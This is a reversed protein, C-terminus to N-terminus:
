EEPNKEGHSSRYRIVIPVGGLAFATRLKSALFAQHAPTSLTPDNVFLTVRPPNRGTQTAYYFKLQRNRRVPAQASAFADRIARNLVGTPLRTELRSAVADIVAFSRKVNEGTKASIFLVPIDGLFFMDKRMAKEYDSPRIDGHERAIDWKNVLVVCAKHNERVLAAIKKEQTGPGEQADLVLVVLDADAIAQEARFLSFKEVSAHVRGQKRMGATDILWYHRNEISFPVRITDRTTGAVDSVILRNRGLLRNIYSSKGANPRGVVAISLRMPEDAATAPPLVKLAASLLADLGLHHTASVPFVPYGLEYFDEGGHPQTTDDDAKNAAVFVPRHATRLLRAVELDLPKLGARIDVVLIIAAADVIAAHVQEAAAASIADSSRARDMQALGGTDVIQFRQGEYEAPAALIDRTVGEESHVIAIRRRAIANFLSSKGVNPRGVIAITRAPAALIAGGGALGGELDPAVADDPAPVVPMEPQEAADLRRREAQDREIAARKRASFAKKPAPRKHLRPKAGSSPKASKRRTPKM